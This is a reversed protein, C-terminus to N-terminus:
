TNYTFYNTIEHELNEEVSKIQNYLKDNNAFLGFQKYATAGMVSVTMVTCLSLVIPNSSMLAFFAAPTAWIGLMFGLGFGGATILLGACMVWLLAKILDSIKKSKIVQLIFRDFEAIADKPDTGSEINTMLSRFKQNIDSCLESSIKAKILIKNIISAGQASLQQPRLLYQKIDHIMAQRAQLFQHQDWLRSPYLDGLKAAYKYAELILLLHSFKMKTCAALAQMLTMPTKTANFVDDALGHIIDANVVKSNIFTELSRSLVLSTMQTGSGARMDLLQPVRQIAMDQQVYQMATSYLPTHVFLKSIISAKLSLLRNKDSHQAQSLTDIATMLPYLLDTIRQDGRIKVCFEFLNQLGHTDIISTYQSQIEQMVEKFKDFDIMDYLNVESGESLIQAKHMNGYHEEITEEIAKELVGEHANRMGGGSLFHENHATVMNLIKGNKDYVVRDVAENHYHATWTFVGPFLGDDRLTFDTIPQYNERFETKGFQQVHRTRAASLSRWLEADNSGSYADIDKKFKMKPADPNMEFWERLDLKIGAQVDPELSMGQFDYLIDIDQNNELQFINKAYRILSAIDVLKSYQELALNDNDDVNSKLAELTQIALCLIGQRELANAQRYALLTDYLSAYSSSAHYIESTTRSDLSQHM